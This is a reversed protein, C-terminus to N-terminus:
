TGTRAEHFTWRRNAIFTLLVVVGTAVVQSLLYHVKYADVGLSVIWTNVLCGMFAVVAFKYAANLHRGSYRFTYKCNLAYNVIAGVAFGQATAVAPRVGGAQVLAILVAYHAATGVAGVGLFRAFQQTLNLWDM